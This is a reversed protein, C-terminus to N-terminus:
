RSPAYLPAQGDRKVIWQLWLRGLKFWRISYELGDAVSSSRRTRESRSRGVAHRTNSRRDFRRVPRSHNNKYRRPRSALLRPSLRVESSGERVRTGFPVIMPTLFNKSLPTTSYTSKSLSKAHFPRVRTRERYMTHKNRVNAACRTSSFATFLWSLVIDPLSDYRSSSWLYLLSSGIPRDVTELKRGERETCERRLERSQTASARENALSVLRVTSLEFGM